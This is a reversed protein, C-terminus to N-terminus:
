GLDLVISKEDSVQRIGKEDGKQWRNPFSSNSAPWKEGRVLSVTLLSAKGKGRDRIM